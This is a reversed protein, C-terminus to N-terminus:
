SPLKFRSILQSLNNALKRLENSRSTVDGAQRSAELAADSVGQINRSVEEASTASQSVMVSFANTDNTITQINRAIEKSTAAQEEVASAINTSIAHLEAIIKLAADLSNSSEQTTQQIAAVRQRIQESAEAARRALEKVEAAVVAFGKGADGASAAEITANLSLLNTQEAIASILDVIQGIEKAAVSLENVRERTDRSQRSLQDAISSQQQCNKSVEEVTTTMEESASAVSITAERIRNASQALDKATAALETGAAAVNRAQATTQEAGAAQAQANKALLDSAGNLSSAAQRIESVLNRLQELSHNLSQQLEGLEDTRNIKLSKSLDGQALASMADACERIPKVISRAVGWAIFGLVVASAITVFVSNRQSALAEGALDDKPARVITAWGFGPFGGAGHSPSYGVLLKLKKRTHYDEGYGSEGRLVRVAAEKGAKVFNLKFIVDPNRYYEKRQNGSPDYEAIVTGEKNILAIEGREIGTKAMEEDYIYVLMEEVVRFDVLNHWAGLFTGDDAQIPASFSVAWMERGYTEQAMRSVHVDEMVTGTLKSSSNFDKNKVRVFWSENSVDKGLLKETNIKAGDPSITNVAVVKGEKNVVLSLFYVGYLKVYRNLLDTLTAQTKTDLSPNQLAVEVFPNAAFAQVDGYRELFTRDLSDNLFDAITKLELASNKFVVDSEKFVIVTLITVPILGVVILTLILKTSLKM